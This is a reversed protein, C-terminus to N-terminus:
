IVRVYVSAVSESLRVNLHDGVGVVEEGGLKWALRGCGEEAAAPGCGTVDAAACSAAAAAPAVAAAFACGAGTFARFLHSLSTRM